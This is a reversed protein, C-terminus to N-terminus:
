NIIKKAELPSVVEIKKNGELTNVRKDIDLSFVGYDGLAENIDKIAHTHGTIRAYLEILCGIVDIQKKGDVEKTYRSIFETFKEEKKEM